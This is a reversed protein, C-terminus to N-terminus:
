GIGRDAGHAKTLEALRYLFKTSENRSLAADHLQHWHEELLKLEHPRKIVRAGAPYEMYAFDPTDGDFRLLQFDSDVFLVPATFPLIQITVQMHLNMLTVLHEAQDAVLDRNGGPMRLLSSESLIARYEPPSVITFIGARAKRQRLLSTLDSTETEPHQALMYHESQLPGPIRESHWCLIESADPELHSLQGFASWAASPRVTSPWGYNSQSALSRLEDAQAVSLDYLAIMAELDYTSISILTTEIKQIKGQTCELKSAVQSQTLGAESRAKRLALGLRMRGAAREETV